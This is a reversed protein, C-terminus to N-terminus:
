FRRSHVINEPLEEVFAEDIQESVVVSKIQSQLVKQSRFTSIDGSM